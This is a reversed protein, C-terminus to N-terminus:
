NVMQHVCGDNKTVKQTREREGKGGRTAGERGETGRERGRETERERM